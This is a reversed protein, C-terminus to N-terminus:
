GEIKEDCSDPNWWPDTHTPGTSLITASPCINAGDKPKIKKTDNWWYGMNM